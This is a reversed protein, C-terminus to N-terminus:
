VEPKQEGTRLPKTYRKLLELYTETTDLLQKQEEATMEHFSCCEAHIVPEVREEAIKKGEETLYIHKERGKGSVMRLYGTRELKKISSNITQKSVLAIECIERQLCGDGLICIAYFIDFVSSSLNQTLFMEQYIANAQKQLHIFRQLVKLEQM